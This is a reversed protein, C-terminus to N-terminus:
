FVTTSFIVFRHSVRNNAFCRVSDASADNCVDHFLFRASLLLLRTAGSFIATSSSRASATLRPANTSPSSIRRRTRTDVWISSRSFWLVGSRCTTPMSPLQRIRQARLLAKAVESVTESHAASPSRKRLLEERCRHRRSRPDCSRHPGQYKARSGVIRSSRQHPFAEFRPKRWGKQREM